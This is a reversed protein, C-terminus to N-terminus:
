ITWHITRKIILGILFDGFWILLSIMIGLVFLGTFDNYATIARYISGLGHSNSIFEFTLVLGWTYFHVHKFYNALAPLSSKWYVDKYIDNQSLGLNKSVLIYEENVKRSEEFLKKTTLFVAMVFAFLFEGFLDNPFWFNILIIFFIPTFYKLFRLSTFSNELHEMYKLYRAVGIYIQVWCTILSLYVITATTTFAFALNYDRWVHVLSEFLITPKPIVKNIPLIFEFLVIYIFLLWAFVVLNNKISNNEKIM